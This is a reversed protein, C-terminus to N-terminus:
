FPVSATQAPAVPEPRAATRVRRHALTESLSAEPAPVGSAKMSQQPRSLGPRGGIGRMTPM